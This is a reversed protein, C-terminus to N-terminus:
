CKKELLRRNNQVLAALLLNHLPVHRGLYLYTSTVIAFCLITYTFFTKVFNLNINKPM